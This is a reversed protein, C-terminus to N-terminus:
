KREIGMLKRHFHILREQILLFRSRISYETGTQTVHGANVLRALRTKLISDANYRRYIEKLTAKKEPMQDIEMLLRIRVAAEGMGFIWGLYHFVFLGYILSISFGALLFTSTTPYSAPSLTFKWLMGLFLFSIVYGSTVSLLFVRSANKPDLCRFIFVHIMLFSLFGACSSTLVLLDPM